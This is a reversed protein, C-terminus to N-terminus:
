WMWRAFLVAVAIAGIAALYLYHRVRSGPEAVENKAYKAFAERTELYTGNIIPKTPNFM